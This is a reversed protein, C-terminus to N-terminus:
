LRNVSQRWSLLDIRTQKTDEFGLQESLNNLELPDELLDYYESKRRGFHEIFKQNGRISAMCGLEYWCHAFLTRDDSAKWILQGPPRAGQLEFGLLNMLTPLLDLQSVPPSIVDGVPAVPDYIMLPVHLGEEWM